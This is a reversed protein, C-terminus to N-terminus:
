KRHGESRAILLMQMVEGDVPIRQAIAKRQLDVVTVRSPWTDRLIALLSRDESLAIAGGCIKGTDSVVPGPRAGEVLRTATLGGQYVCPGIGYVTASVSDFAFDMFHNMPALGVDYERSQAAASDIVVVASGKVAALVGNRYPVFAGHADLCGTNPRISAPRECLRASLDHFEVWDIGTTCGYLTAPGCGGHYSLYLRGEDRSIKAAYVRWDRLSDRSFAFRMREAGARPDFVVGRAQHDAMLYLLGTQLGVDILPYAISDRISGVESPLLTSLDVRIIRTLKARANVLSVFLEDRNPNFAISGPVGTIDRSLLSCQGLVIGTRPDVLVVRGDRLLLVLESAGVDVRIPPTSRPIAISTAAIFTIAAIARGIMATPLLETTIRSDRLAVCPSPYGPIM